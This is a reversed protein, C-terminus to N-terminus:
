VDAMGHSAACKRNCACGVSLGQVGTGVRVHPLRIIAAVIPLLKGPGLRIRALEINRAREAAPADKVNGCRQSPPNVLMWSEKGRQGSAAKGADDAESVAPNPGSEAITVATKLVRLDHDGVETVLRSAPPNILMRAENNVEVSITEGVDNSEAVFIHPRGNAVPVSSKLPRFDCDSVVAVVLIPADATVRSKKDVQGVASEGVNDSEAFVANPDSQAIAIAREALGKWVRHEVVKGIVLVPAHIFVRAEQGVEGVTSERIDDAKALIAHKDYQGVAIAGKSFWVRVRHERVEAVLLAPAHILMGSEESREGVATEVIDDAESVCAHPGSEAIAVTCKRLCCVVRNEIIEAIVLAPSNVLM